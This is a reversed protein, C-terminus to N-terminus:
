QTGFFARVAGFYGAEHHQKWLATRKAPTLKQTQQAVTV